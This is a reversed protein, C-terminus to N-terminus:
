YHGGLKPFPVWYPAVTSLIPVWFFAYICSAVIQVVLTCLDVYGVPGFLEIVFSHASCLMFGTGALISVVNLLLHNLVICESKILMRLM